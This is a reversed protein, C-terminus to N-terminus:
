APVDVRGPVLGGICVVADASANGALAQRARHAAAAIADAMEGQTCVELQIEHIELAGPEAPTGELVCIEDGRLVWRGIQGHRAHLQSLAVHGARIAGARDSALGLRCLEAAVNLADALECWAHMGDANGPGTKLTSMAARMPQVFARRQAPPLLAARAMAVGMPDICLRKAAIPSRRQHHRRHAM